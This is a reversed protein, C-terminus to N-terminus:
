LILLPRTSMFGALKKWWESGLVLPACVSCWSCACCWTRQWEKGLVTESQFRRGVGIEAVRVWPGSSCLSQVLFLCLVIDEEVGEEGTYDKFPVEERGRNRGSQGLSSLLAFVVGPVSVVSHGRGSRGKYQRQSSGGGWPQRKLGKEGTRGSDVLGCDECGGALGWVEM